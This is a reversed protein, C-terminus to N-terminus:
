TRAFQGPQLGLANLLSDSVRGLDDYEDHPRALATKLIDTAKEVDAEAVVYITADADRRHARVRILRGFGMGGSHRAYRGIELVPLLRPLAIPDIRQRLGGDAIQEVQLVCQMEVADDDHLRADVADVIGARDATQHEFQGCGPRPLVRSSM